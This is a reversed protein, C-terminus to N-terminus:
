LLGAGKLALHVAFDEGCHKCKYQEDLEHRCNLQWISTAFLGNPFQVLETDAYLAVEAVYRSLLAKITRTRDTGNEIWQVVPARGYGRVSGLNRMVHAQTRSLKM